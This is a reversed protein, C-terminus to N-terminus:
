LPPLIGGPAKAAVRSDLATRVKRCLEENTFSKQLFHIGPQLHSSELIVKEPHGSMYLVALSPRQRRLSDALERGNMAPMIVDTVLLHITNAQVSFIHLAETPTAAELVTYGQARLAKGTVLRVIDEDEVLLITETGSIAMIAVSQPEPAAAAEVAVSVRPLYIQFTAGHKPRSSVAIDGGSQKVIGYVTALGLGTGKGREKTTFFPEFIHKMTEEDMGEGNDSITLLVYSGPQVEPHRRAYDAGLEINGTELSMNGGQSMADRANLLLNILMQELHTQDMKIMGLKPDLGLRIQIDEGLLRAFLRHMDSLVQNVNLVKPASVQRRGFALLQKTLEQARYSAKLVEGLDERRPDDSELTSKIDETIGLIGTLLNNFDHAVGGALRGIAELKQSQYLAEQSQTLAQSLQRYEADTSEVSRPEIRILCGQFEGKGQPSLPQASFLWLGAPNGPVHVRQAVGEQMLRQLSAMVLELSAPSLAPAQLLLKPLPLGLVYDRELRLWNLCATNVATVALDADLILSPDPAQEFLAKYDPGAAAPTSRSTPPPSTEAM